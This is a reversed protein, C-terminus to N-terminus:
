FLYCFLTLVSLITYAGSPAPSPTNSAPSPTNPVPTCSTLIQSGYVIGSSSPATINACAGFGVPTVSFGPLVTSCLSDQYLTLNTGGSGCTNQEYGREGYYCSTPSYVSLNFSNGVCGQQGWQRGFTTYAFTGTPYNSSPDSCMFSYYLTSSGSGATSCVGVFSSLTILPSGVCNSSAYYSTTQNGTANCQIAAYYTNSGIVTVLCNPITKVVIEIPTGTCNSLPWVVTTVTVTQSISEYTFLLLFISSFILSRRM